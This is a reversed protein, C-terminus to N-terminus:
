KERKAEKTEREIGEEKQVIEKEIMNKIKLVAKEKIKILLIAEKNRPLHDVEKKEKIIKLNFRKQIKRQCQLILEKIM